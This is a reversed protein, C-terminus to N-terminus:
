IAKLASRPDAVPGSPPRKSPRRQEAQEGRTVEWQLRRRDIPTLGFRVEQQRIEKAAELLIKPSDATWRVQYLDALLYLGGKMDADLYEPAMPSQWVADWWERVQPHWEAADDRAYLEPVEYEAAEEASSLTAATTM